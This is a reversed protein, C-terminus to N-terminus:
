LQSLITLIEDGHGGSIKAIKKVGPTYFRLHNAIKSTLLAGEIGIIFM